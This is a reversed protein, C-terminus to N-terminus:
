AVCGDEQRELLIPEESQIYPPSGQPSSSAVLRPLSSTHGEDQEHDGSMDKSKALEQLSGAQNQDDLKDPPSVALQSMDKSKALEQLSGAQNQDDLKDPPSVALQSRM